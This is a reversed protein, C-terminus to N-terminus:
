EKVAKLPQTHLKVLQVDYRVGPAAKANLQDALKDMTERDADYTLPTIVEGVISVVQYLAEIM